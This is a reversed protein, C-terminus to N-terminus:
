FSSQIGYKQDKRNKAFFHHILLQDFAFGVCVDLAGNRWTMDKYFCYKPFPLNIFLFYPLMSFSKQLFPILFFFLFFLMKAKQKGSRKKCQAKHAALVNKIFLVVNTIIDKETRWSQDTQKEVLFMIPELHNPSGQGFEYNLLQKNFKTNSIIIHCVLPNHVMCVKHILNVSLPKELTFALKSPGICVCQNLLNKTREAWTFEKEECKHVQTKITNM